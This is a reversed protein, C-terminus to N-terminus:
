NFKRVFRISLPPLDPHIEQVTREIQGTDSNIFYTNAIKWYIKPMYINEKYVITNIPPRGEIHSAIKEENKRLLKLHQEQYYLGPNMFNAILSRSVESDASFEPFDEYNIIEIDNPLGSTKIIKGNFTFIKESDSSIWELVNNDERVLVLISKPSGIGFSAVIFAYEISDFTEESIQNDQVNGVFTKGSQYILQYLPFSLECSSLFILSVLISAFKTM